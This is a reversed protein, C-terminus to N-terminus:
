ERRLRVRYLEKMCEECFDGDGTRYIYDDEYLKEGCRHCTALPKEDTFYDEGWHGTIYADMNIMSDSM